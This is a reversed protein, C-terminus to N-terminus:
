IVEKLMRIKAQAKVRSIEADYYKFSTSEPNVSLMFADGVFLRHKDNSEHMGDVVKVWSQGDESRYISDGSHCYLNGDSGAAHSNGRFSSNVFAGASKKFIVPEGNVFGQFVIFRDNEGLCYFTTPLNEGQLAPADAAMDPFVGDDIFVKRGDIIAFFLGENSVYFDRCYSDSQLKKNEGIYIGSPTDYVSLYQKEGDHFFLEPRGSNHLPLDVRGGDKDIATIKKSTLGDKNKVQMAYVVGNLAKAKVGGANLNEVGNKNIRFIPDNSEDTSFFVDGTKNDMTFSNENIGYPSWEISKGTMTEPLPDYVPTKNLAIHLEGSGEIKHAIGAKVPMGNEITVGEGGYWFPEVDSYLTITKRIKEFTLVRQSGGFHEIISSQNVNSGNTLADYGLKHESVWMQVKQPQESIIQILTFEKSTQVDFGAAVVSDILVNVGNTVRIRFETESSIVKLFRGTQNIDDVSGAKVLKNVLM